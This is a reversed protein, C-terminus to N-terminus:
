SGLLHRLRDQYAGLKLCPHPRVILLYDCGPPLDHQMLRYAERLLRKIRNREVANGCRRGISIGLRSPGNDPRRLIHVSLPHHQRRRGTKYVADITSRGKLKQGRAFTYCLRTAGERPTTAAARRKASAQPPRSM